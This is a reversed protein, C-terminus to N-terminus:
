ILEYLEDIDVAGGKAYGPEQKSAAMRRLIEDTPNSSRGYGQEIPRPEIGRLAELFSEPTHYRGGLDDRLSRILEDTSLRRGLTADSSVIGGEPTRQFPYIRNLERITGSMEPDQFDIDYLDELDFMRIDGLEEIKGLGEPLPPNRILDQVFPLYEESPAENQKGRIQNIRWGMGSTRAEAGLAPYVQEYANLLEDMDMTDLVDDTLDVVRGEADAYQMGSLDQMITRRSYPSENLEIDVHPRGQPDRLSFIRTDGRMVPECYGGICNQMLNGETTLLRSTTEEDPGKLEMWKYGEPYERMMPLMDNLEKMQEIDRYDTYKRIADELSLRNLNEPRLGSESSVQRDLYKALNGFGLVDPNENRLHYLPTQPDLKAMWPYQELYGPSSQYSEAPLSKTLYDTISEWDQGADTQATGYRDFGKEVRINRVEREDPFYSNNRLIRQPKLQIGEDYLQRIEDKPSAMRNQLYKGVAREMWDQVAPETATNRLNQKIREVTQPNWQGGELKVVNMRPDLVNSGIMGTGEEIQRAVERGAAKAAKTGLKTVPQALGAVGAVDILRPDPRAGVIKPGYLPPRLPNYGYSVDEILSQASQLGLLDDLTMGGILPVYDRVELNSAARAAPRLLDSLAGVFRNRPTARLEAM